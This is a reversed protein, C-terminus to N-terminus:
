ANATGTPNKTDHEKKGDFIAACDITLFVPNTPHIRGYVDTELAFSGSHDSTCWLQTNSQRITIGELPLGTDADKVTGSITTKQAMLATSLFAFMM